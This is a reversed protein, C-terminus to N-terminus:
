ARDGLLEEIKAVLAAPAAPKDFYADIGLAALDEPSEPQFDLGLVSAASTILVVPVSGFEPREKIQRAFAAGAGMSGMMLDTIVLDPRERRLQELGAQGDTCCRVEYGNAELVSRTMDLFDPDDDVLLIKAPTNM